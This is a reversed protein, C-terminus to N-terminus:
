SEYRALDADLADMAEHARDFADTPLRHQAALDRARRLRQRAEEINLRVLTMAGVSQLRRVPDTRMDM